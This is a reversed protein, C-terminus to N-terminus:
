RDAEAMGLDLSALIVSLDEIRAGQLLEPLVLLHGQTPVRFQVRCPREKGDSVVHCGLLGRASEIRAYAEGPAVTFDFLSASDGRHPESFAGAPVQRVAQRLLHISQEMERLRVLFRDHVDGLSGVEGAGVAPNFDLDQYRLYPCERRLDVDVGCARANPGTVGAAFAQAATLVGINASRKVFINNYTFLDNYEKMRIQILDCVELVREIFGDSMDYAVGGFRLFHHSFRAGTLLEFLDLIKERDRLLYHVITESGVAQAIRVMFLLHSSIRSLEAVIMRIFQAREPVEVGLIEEVALCFVLEGFIAAEPDLHDVYALAERWSHLELCKELGRHLFGHEVESGAIWEGDLWLRLRMPGPLASHYPGMEWLTLLSKNEIWDMRM